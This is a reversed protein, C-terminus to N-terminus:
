GVKAGIILETLGEGWKSRHHQRLNYHIAGTDREVDRSITWPM